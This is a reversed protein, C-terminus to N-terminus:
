KLVGKKNLKKYPLLRYVFNSFLLILIPLILMNWYLQKNIITFDDRFFQFPLLALILIYYTKFFISNKSLYFIISYYLGFFFIYVFGLLYGFNGQISVFISFAGLPNEIFFKDGLLKVLSGKDEFLFSPIFNVFSTAYNSPVDIIELPNNALFTASSWWTFLPEALLFYLSLQISSDADLRWSGILLIFLLIVVSIFLIKLKNWKKESYNFKYVLISIISILVYMRSGFGLLIIALIFLLSTIYFNIKLRLGSLKIHLLLFSIVMYLTTLKGLINSNTSYGTFLISSNLYVLYSIILSLLISIAVFNDTKLLVYKRKRKIVKKIPFIFFVKSGLYFSFFYGVVIALYMLLNNNSISSFNNHWLEMSPMDPMIHYIGVFLPLILYYIWGFLFFKTHLM